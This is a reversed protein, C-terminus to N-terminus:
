NLDGVSLAASCNKSERKKGLDSWIHNFSIGAGELFFVIGREGGWVGDRPDM